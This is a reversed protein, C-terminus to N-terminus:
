RFNCELHMGYPCLTYFMSKYTDCFLMNGLAEHYDDVFLLQSTSTLSDCGYLGLYMLFFFVKSKTKGM